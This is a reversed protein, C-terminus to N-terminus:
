SKGYYFKELIKINNKIDFKEEICHRGNQGLNVRKEWNNFLYLLSDAIKDPQKPPILIGSVGDKVIDPVGSNNSAVVPVEMAMAEILTIGFSEDHSPFVLVDFISLLEPVNKIFGPFLVKEKLGLEECLGFIKGAYEEEGFSAEGAIIYTVPINPKDELLKISHLFDEIGKGPTFRGIMGAVLNDVPICYKEKISKANYESMNYKDVSLSNYLIHVRCPDAPCTKIVNDKIFNSIAFIGTLKKYLLKHFIDKKMVGSALHRTLFFRPKKGTLYLAPSLSWLDHSLHSHIVDTHTSTLYKSIELISYPINNKAGFVPYANIGCNKVESELRSNKRCFVSVKHGRERLFVSTNLATM